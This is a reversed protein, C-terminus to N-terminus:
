DSAPAGYGAGSMRPRATRAATIRFSFLIKTLLRMVTQWASPPSAATIVRRLQVLM